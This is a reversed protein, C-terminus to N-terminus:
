PSVKVVSCHTADLPECAPPQILVPPSGPIRNLAHIQTEASQWGIASSLRVANGSTAVSCSDISLIWLVSRDIMSLGDEALDSMDPHLM